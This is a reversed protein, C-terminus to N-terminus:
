GEVELGGPGPSVTWADEFRNQTSGFAGGGADGAEGGGVVSERLGGAAAALGSKLGGGRM